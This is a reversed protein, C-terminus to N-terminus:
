AVFYSKNKGVLPSKLPLWRPQAPGFNHKHLTCDFTIELQGLQYFMSLLQCIHSMSM